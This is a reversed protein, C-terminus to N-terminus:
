GGLEILILFERIYEAYFFFLVCMIGTIISPMWCLTPAEQIRQFSFKESNNSFDFFGRGVIPLLYAINLLSSTLFVGVIVIQDSEIASLILMWKSWSGALPPLGIISLSALLFATFTIPMKKGLGSIQSVNTKKTAVYISGACMFLTVKAFAHTLIHFSSGLIGVANALALGLTIYSLQSVTSFALRAKLNDKQLAIISSAIITFSTVWILWTSASTEKLWDIGFIYIGVKLITFVGAKVVAVAHLLASVPTPAVMAAPLWGHFPMLAAKGVGFCFLALLIAIIYPESKNSLIGGVTFDLTGALSFIWIIALLQFGVSTGILVGLYTKAGKLAEKTGKHAVLPFTALTLIEYFVFLTFLNQSFAIGMVTSISLSFFSFFRARNKEKNKRMYGVAYIHTMVWLSSAIGAFLLGLNEVHFSVKLDPMITIIDFNDFYSGKSEFFIKIVFIFTVISILLTIIDRLNESKKIFLNLISALLPLFITLLIFIEIKNM